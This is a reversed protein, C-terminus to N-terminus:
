FLGHVLRQHSYMNDKRTFKKIVDQIHASSALDIIGQYTLPFTDKLTMNVIILFLKGVPIAVIYAKILRRQCQSYLAKVLAIHIQRIKKEAAQMWFVEEKNVEIALQYVQM